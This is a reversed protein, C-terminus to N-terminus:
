PAVPSHARMRQEVNVVKMTRRREAAPVYVAVAVDYAAIMRATPLGIQV